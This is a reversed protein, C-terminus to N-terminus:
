TYSGFFPARNRGVESTSTSLLTAFAPVVMQIWTDVLRLSPRGFFVSDYNFTVKPESVSPCLNCFQKRSSRVVGDFIM